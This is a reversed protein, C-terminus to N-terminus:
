RIALSLSLSWSLLWYIKRAHLKHARDQLPALINPIGSVLEIGPNDFWAPDLTAFSSAPHFTYFSALNLSM